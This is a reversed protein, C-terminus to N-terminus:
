RYLCLPFGPRSPGSECFAPPRESPTVGSTIVLGDRSGAAGVLIEFRWPQSSGALVAYYGYDPPDLYAVREGAPIAAIVREGFAVEERRDAFAERYLYWFRLMYLLPAVCAIGILLPMPKGFRRERYVRVTLAGTVMAILLHIALLAREPHHTPAGGRISSATLAIFLFLSVLVPRLFSALESSASALRGHFMRWSLFALLLLLEPEARGFAHVYAVARPVADGNDTADKYATVSDLYHFFSGHAHKTWLTWALPAAVALLAAVFSTSRRTPDVAADYVCYAAFGLAIFWPEYRSLCAAALLAAGLLRAKAPARPSLSAIAFLSCAAAPLEPVMSAGLRASWPMVAAIITAVRAETADRTLWGASVRFLLLSGVGLAVAVARAVWIETGALMMVGGNLWFPLPLWSTGSPDLAPAYAFLQAIVVRAYDDDSVGEYGVALVALSVALKLLAFAGLEAGRLRL